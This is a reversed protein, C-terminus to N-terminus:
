RRLTRRAAHHECLAFFMCAVLAGAPGDVIFHQKTTLTTVYLVLTITLFGIAWSQSQRWFALTFYTPLMVHLSPFTAAAADLTHLQAVLRSSLADGPLTWVAYPLVTLHSGDVALPPRPYPMPYTLFVVFHLLGAVCLGFAIRIANDQRYLRWIALPLTGWLLVTYPWVSAPVFPIATEYPTAVMYAPTSANRLLAGCALYGGVLWVAAGVIAARRQGLEISRQM